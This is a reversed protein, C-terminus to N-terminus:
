PSRGTWSRIAAPVDVCPKPPADGRGFCHPPELAGDNILDRLVDPRPPQGDHGEVLTRYALAEIM